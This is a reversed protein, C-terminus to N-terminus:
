EGPKRKAVDVMRNEIQPNIQGQQRMNTIVIDSLLPPFKTNGSEGEREKFMWYGDGGEALYQTTALLYNKEPAIPEGDITVKLVREKAPLRSDYTVQMGAVHPFRGELSELMSLGNELAQIIVKGKIDLTAVKNRFPLEQFIDGRTILEGEQYYKEARIIGGNLLVVDAQTFSKIADTLLNAFANEGSRVAKRSTDMPAKLQSIQEDLLRNLRMSYGTTQAVVEPDPAFQDLNLLKSEITLRESENENLSCSVVAAQAYRSLLVNRPHSWVTEESRIDLDPDTLFALDIVGQELQKKVFLSPHSYLLVVLQAGSARLQLAKVKVQESPDIVQARELPYEETVSPDVVSVIGISLNGKEILVRDVLGTPTSRVLPDFLNSAVMPFGAEFARLSLEDEYYSFERQSVGMADPELSNLVDIIHAGRDFGSMPSPGLSAGGFLFATETEQARVEKLLTALRSYAGKREDGVVPMDATFVFTINKEDAWASAVLTILM